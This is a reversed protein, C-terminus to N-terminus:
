KNWQMKFNRIMLKYVPTWMFLPVSSSSCSSNWQRAWPLAKRQSHFGKFINESPRQLWTPGLLHYPARSMPFTLRNLDNGTFIAQSQPSMPLRNLYGQPGLRVTKSTLPFVGMSKLATYTQASNQVYHLTIRMISRWHGLFYTLMQIGYAKVESISPMYSIEYGRHACM